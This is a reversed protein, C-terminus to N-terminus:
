CGDERQARIRGHKKKKINHPIGRCVGHDFKNPQASAHCSLPKLTLLRASLGTPLFCISCAVLDSGAGTDWVHNQLKWCSTLPMPNKLTKPDHVSMYVHVRERACMRASQTPPRGVGESDQQCKRPDGAHCHLV